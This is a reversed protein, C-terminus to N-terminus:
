PHKQVGLADTHSLHSPAEIIERYAGVTTEGRLSIFPQIGIKNKSDRVFTIGYHVTLHEEQLARSAHEIEHIFTTTVFRKKGETSFADGLKQAALDLLLLYKDQTDVLVTGNGYPIPDIVLRTDATATGIQENRKQTAALEEASATDNEVLTGELANLYARDVLERLQNAACDKETKTNRAEPALDKEIMIRLM